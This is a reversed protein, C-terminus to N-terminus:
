SSSFHWEDEDMEDRLFYLEQMSVPESLVTRGLSLWWLVCQLPACNFEFDFHKSAMSILDPPLPISHSSIEHHVLVTVIEKVM